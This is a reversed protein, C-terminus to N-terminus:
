LFVSISVRSPHLSASLPQQVAAPKSSLLHTRAGRQEKQKNAAEGQAKEMEASPFSTTGKKM